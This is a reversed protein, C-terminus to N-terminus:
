LGNRGTKGTHMQEGTGCHRRWTSGCSTRRTRIGFAGMLGSEFLLQYGSFTICLSSEPSIALPSVENGPLVALPAVSRWLLKSVGTRAWAECIYNRDVQFTSAAPRQHALAAVDTLIQDLMACGFASMVHGINSKTFADGGRFGMALLSGGNMVFRVLELIEEGSFMAGAHYDWAKEARNFTGVPPSNGFHM